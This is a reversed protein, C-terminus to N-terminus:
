KRRRLEGEIHPMGVKAKLIEETSETHASEPKGVGLLENDRGPNGPTSKKARGKNKSERWWQWPWKLAHQKWWELHWWASEPTEGRELRIREREANRAEQEAQKVKRRQEKIEQRKIKQQRWTEQQQSHVHFSAGAGM